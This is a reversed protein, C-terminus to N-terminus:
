KFRHGWLAKVKELGNIGNSAEEVEFDPAFSRPSKKVVLTEEEFLGIAADELESEDLSNPNLIGRISDRVIEEDDIILVRNSSM